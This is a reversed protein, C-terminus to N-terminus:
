RRHGKRRKPKGPPRHRPSAHTGKECGRRWTPGDRHWACVGAAAQQEALWPSGDVLTRDSAWGGAPDLTVLRGCHTCKGGDMLRRALGDVAAAPHPQDEVTIRTGRWSASAYWGALEIPVDDHLYGVELATAGTRPIVELAATLIDDAPAM